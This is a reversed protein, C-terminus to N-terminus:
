CTPDAQLFLGTAVVRPESPPGYPGASHGGSGNETVIGHRQGAAAQDAIWMTTSGGQDLAM